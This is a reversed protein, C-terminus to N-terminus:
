LSEERKALQLILQVEGRAMGTAKAVMDISKGHDYLEFLEAYRERVSPLFDAPATVIVEESMRQAFVVDPSGISTHSPASSMAAATQLKQEQQAEFIAMRTEYDLLRQRLEVIQEQQTLHKSTTDQKMQGLLGVIEQNDKEIEAMYQELTEEVNTMNGQVPQLTFKRRPSIWAYLFM